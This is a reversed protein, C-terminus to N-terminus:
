RIKRMMKRIEEKDPHAELQPKLEKIGRRKGADLFWNALYEIRQEPTNKKFRKFPDRM